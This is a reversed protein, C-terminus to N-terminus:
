PLPAPEDSLSRLYAIIDARRAPDKEGGFAMKTGSAFGKPAEIFHDLSAYDWKGGKGKLSDSYAFGAHSAIPANVVGYLGPGVKNAGGKDFVHCATCPKILGEGKKADATKLRDAIPAATATAAGGTSATEVEASPLAYASQKPVGHHFIAESLIGLGMIFLLTGLVAGAIKNFEFSDM